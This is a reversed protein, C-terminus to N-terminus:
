EDATTDETRRGDAEIGAHRAATTLTPPHTAKGQTTALHGATGADVRQLRAVEIATMPILAVEPRGEITTGGADSM